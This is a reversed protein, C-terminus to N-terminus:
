PEDEIEVKHADGPKRASGFVLFVWFCIGVSVLLFLVHVAIIEVPSMLDVTSGHGEPLYEPGQFPFALASIGASYSFEFGGRRVQYVASVMAVLSVVVIASVLKSKSSM